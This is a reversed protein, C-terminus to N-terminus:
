APAKNFVLQSESNVAQYVGSIKRQTFRNVRLGWPGVGDVVLQM